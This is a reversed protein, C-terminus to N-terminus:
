ILVLHGSLALAGRGPSPAVPAVVCRPASDDDDDAALLPDRPHAPVAADPASAATQLMTPGFINNTVVTAIKTQCAAIFSTTSQATAMSYISDFISSKASSEANTSAAPTAVSAWDEKVSGMAAIAVSVKSFNDVVSRKPKRRRANPSPESRGGYCEFAGNVTVRRDRPPSAVIDTTQTYTAFAPKLLGVNEATIESVLDTNNFSIESM